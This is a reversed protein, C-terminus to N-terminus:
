KNKNFFMKDHEKQLMLDPQSRSYLIESEEITWSVHNNELLEKCIKGISIYKDVDSIKIEREATKKLEECYFQLNYIGESKESLKVEYIYNKM